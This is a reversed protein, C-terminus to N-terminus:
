LAIVVENYKEFIKYLGYNRIGYENAAEGTGNYRSLINKIKYEETDYDYSSNKQYACYLLNLSAM